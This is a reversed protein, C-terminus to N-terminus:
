ARKRIGNRCELLQLRAIAQDDQRVTVVVHQFVGLGIDAEREILRNGNCLGPVKLWVERGILFCCLQKALGATPDHMDRVVGEITDTRFGIAHPRCPDITALPRHPFRGM